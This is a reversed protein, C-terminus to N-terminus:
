VDNLDHAYDDYVLELGVRRRLNQCMMFMRGGGYYERSLNAITRLEISMVRLRRRWRVIDRSDLPAKGVKLELVQELRESHLLQGGDLVIDPLPLRLM